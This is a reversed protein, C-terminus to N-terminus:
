LYEDKYHWVGADDQFGVVLFAAGKFTTGATEGDSGEDWSTSRLGFGVNEAFTIGRFESRYGAVTQSGITVDYEMIDSIPGMMAREWTMVGNSDTVPAPNGYNSLDYGYTINAHSSSSINNPHPRTSGDPYIGDAPPSVFPQAWYGFNYGPYVPTGDDDGSGGADGLWRGKIKRSGYIYGTHGTHTWMWSWQDLQGSHPGYGQKWNIFTKTYGTGYGNYTGGHGHAYFIDLKPYNTGGWLSRDSTDFTSPTSSTIKKIPYISIQELDTGATVQLAEIHSTLGGNNIVVVGNGGSAASNTDYGDLNNSTSCNQPHIYERYNQSSALNSGAVYPTDLTHQLISNKAGDYVLGFAAMETNIQASYQWAAWGVCISTNFLSLTEAQLTYFPTFDPANTVFSSASGYCYFEYVQGRATFSGFRQVAAYRIVYHNEDYLYGDLNANPDCAQQATTYALPVSTSGGSSSSTTGGSAQYDVGNITFYTSGAPMMTETSNEGAYKDIRWGWHDVGIANVNVRYYKSSDFTTAETDTALTNHSADMGRVIVDVPGSASASAMPTTYSVLIPVFQETSIEYDEENSMLAYGRAEPFDINLGGMIVGKWPGDLPTSGAAGVLNRPDGADVDLWFNDSAGDPVNIEYEVNDTFLAAAFKRFHTQIANFESETPWATSGNILDQASVNTNTGEIAITGTIPTRDYTKSSAIWSSYSGSTGLAQGRHGFYAFKVKIKTVSNWYTQLDSDSVSAVSALGNVRRYEATLSEKTFAIRNDFVRQGSQLKYYPFNIVFDRSPGGWDPMFQAFFYRVPTNGPNQPGLNLSIIPSPPTIESM